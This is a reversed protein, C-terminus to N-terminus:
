TSHQQFKSREFYYSSAGSANNLITKGVVWTNQTFDMVNSTIVDNQAYVITGVVDERTATYLEVKQM